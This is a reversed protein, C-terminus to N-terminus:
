AATREPAPLVLRRSALVLFGSGLGVAMALLGWGTGALGLGLAADLSHRGPGTFALAAGNAALVLPYEYGGKASWPGNSWHVAVANVMTGMVVAGAFPTLLGGALLLGGGVESTAALLAASRARPYGRSAFFQAVPGLGSGGFWGLLKQSGHGALLLGVLVRLMLLGVDM